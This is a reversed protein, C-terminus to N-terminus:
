SLSPGTSHTSAVLDPGQRPPGIIFEAFGASPKEVRDRIPKALAEGM